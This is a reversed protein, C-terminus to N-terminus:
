SHTGDVPTALARDLERQARALATPTSERGSLANYVHESVINTVLEFQPTVPLTTAQELADHVAHGDAADDYSSVLPSTFSDGIAKDQAAQRTLYDILAMAGAPNRAHAPIVLEEGTAVAGPMPTIWWHKGFLAQIGPDDSWAVVLAHGAAGKSRALGKLSDTAMLDYRRYAHRLENLAARDPATDLDAASGDPTLIEGETTSALETFADMLALSNDLLTVHPQDYLHSWQGSRLEPRTRHSIAVRVAFERPLAWSRHQYEGPLLTVPVFEDHRQDVYPTLDKIEGAAALAAIEWSPFSAVDCDGADMAQRLADDNKRSQEPYHAFGATVADQAANFDRTASTETGPTDPGCYTVSGSAHDLHMSALADKPPAPTTAPRPTPTPTPRDAAAASGCGTVLACAALLPACRM